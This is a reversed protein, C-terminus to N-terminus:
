NTTCKAARQGSELNSRVANTMQPYKIPVEAYTACALERQDMGALSAALKLLTQPGLRSDPHDRHTDLFIRAAQEYDGQAYLSEGHWFRAEPLRANNPFREAFTAFVEEAQGYEGAQIFGYGLQYLQDPDEPLSLSALQGQSGQQPAAGGPRTVRSTLDIPAGVNTDIINGDADFTITGLSGPILGTNEAEGDSGEYIEVGDATVRPGAATDTAGTDSPNVRAAENGGSPRADNNRESPQLKGLRTRSGGAAGHKEELEQFRFENDEQMRRLTEQMQLIQFNLEEIQGNLVRVREELQNVRFAADSAQALRMPQRAPHASGGSLGIAPVPAAPEPGTAAAAFASGATVAALLAALVPTKM